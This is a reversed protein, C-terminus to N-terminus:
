CFTRSATVRIQRIVERISDIDDSQSIGGIIVLDPQHDLVSKQM